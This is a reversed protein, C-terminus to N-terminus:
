ADHSLPEDIKIEKRCNKCWLYLGQLSATDDKKAIMKSCNPCLINIKM